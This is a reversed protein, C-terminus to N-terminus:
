TMKGMRPFPPPCKKQEPQPQEQEAEQTSAVSAPWSSSYLMEVPMQAFERASVENAWEEIRNEAEENLIKEIEDELSIGDQGAFIKIWNLLDSDIRMDLHADKSSKWKKVKLKIPKRPRRREQTPAKETEELGTLLYDTSTGLYQAIVDLNKRRPNTKGTNWLSYSASTIGCDKYFDQKQIGREALLANIRNVIPSNGM